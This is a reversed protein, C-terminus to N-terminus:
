SPLSGIGIRLLNETTSATTTLACPKFTRPITRSGGAHLPQVHHVEFHGLCAGDAALACQYGDRRLVRLRVAKWRGTWRLRRDVRSKRLPGGGGGSRGTAM